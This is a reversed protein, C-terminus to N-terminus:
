LMVLLPGMQKELSHELMEAWWLAWLFELLIVKMKVLEDVM